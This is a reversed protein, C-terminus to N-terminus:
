YVKALLDALVEADGEQIQRTPWQIKFHIILDGKSGPAKSVPMGEGRVVREYNPTVVERLPVRLIRGDLTPVDVTGGAALCRHLPLAVTVRLDDGDRVFREHAVQRVVFVLDQAGGGELADGKGAFTIRTGEKWGAKVPIELTEEVSRSASASAADPAAVKRTVRRRKVVGSYLDELTLNLPVEVQRPTRRRLHGRSAMGRGGLGGFGFDDEMGFGGLGGQQFMRAGHGGLGGMGGMGGFFSEFIRQAADQDFHYGGGPMGPGAGGSGPPPMGQLGEEGYADYVKRKEPDSLM